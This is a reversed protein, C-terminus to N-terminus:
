YVKYLANDDLKPIQDFGALFVLGMYFLAYNDIILLPTVSRPTMAAIAPLSAAALALGTLTLVTTLKHSRYFAIVLMVAISTAATIILPLFAIIDTLTM